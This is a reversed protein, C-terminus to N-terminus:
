SVEVSGFVAFSLLSHHFRWSYGLMGCIGPNSSVETTKIGALSKALHPFQPQAPHPSERPWGHVSPAVHNSWWWNM